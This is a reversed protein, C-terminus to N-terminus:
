KIPTLEEMLYLAPEGNLLAVRDLILKVDVDLNLKEIEDLLISASELKLHLNKREVGSFIKLGVEETEALGIRNKALLITERLGGLEDVLGINKAEVGSWIRGQAVSDVEDRTMGRGDAVRKLFQEYYSDVVGQMSQGEQESFARHAGFMDAHPEAVLMDVNYGIKDFLGGMSIKGALVGISGTICAEDAVITDAACAIYYGGSAAVNGMSVYVPKRYKEDASDPNTTRYVERWIDESALVSGGPSNIRLVIAQITEDERAQRIANSTTISGIQKNRGFPSPVSKGPLIPGEAYILAIVPKIGAKWDYVWKRAWKRVKVINIEEGVVKEIIQAKQDPHFAGDILGYTIAQEATFLAQDFIENLLSDTMGPRDMFSNRYIEDVDALIASLSERSSESMNERTYTEAASKYKGRRYYQAKLGLKEFTGKWFAPGIGIGDILLIGGNNLYIGDAMSILSYQSDTMYDSFVYIKKGKSQLRILADRLETRMGFGMGFGEPYIVVGEVDRDETLLDIQRIAGRLTVMRDGFFARPGPSDEIGRSFRITVFNPKKSKILTRKRDINTSVGLLGADQLGDSQDFTSYSEIGSFSYNVSLGLQISESETNYGTILGIGPFIEANLGIISETSSVEDSDIDVMLTQDYSITLRSGFPRVALGLNLPQDLKDRSYINKWSAGLSLWKFGRWLLGMDIAEYGRKSIHSMFGFYLGWDLAQGSGMHFLDYGDSNYTYGFGSNEAQATLSFNFDQSDPDAYNIPVLFQSNFNRDIGLGAPNVNVAGADDLEAVSGFPIYQAVIMSLIVPLCILVKKM